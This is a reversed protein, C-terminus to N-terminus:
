RHEDVRFVADPPYGSEAAPEKRGESVEKQRPRRKEDELAREADQRKGKVIAGVRRGIYLNVFDNTSGHGLM